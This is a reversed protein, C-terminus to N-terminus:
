RGKIGIYKKHYYEAYSTNIWSKPDRPLEAFFLTNPINKISDIMCSDGKFNTLFEHRATREKDYAAATGSTIDKYAVSINNTRFVLIFILILYVPLKIYVPLAFDPYRKKITALLSISFYMMGAVFYYYSVNVTRLPPFEGEAYFCVFLGIVPISVSALLSLWPSIFYYTNPEKNWIDSKSLLDFLLLGILLMFPSWHLLYTKSSVFAERLSFMLKHANPYDVARVLNGPAKIEIISFIICVLLLSLPFLLSRKKVVSLLAVLGVILDIYVLTLEYSGIIAIAFLCSIFFYWKKHKSNSYGIVSGLLLLSMFEAPLCAYSGSEWFIGSPVDPMRMIFAFIFLSTIGLKGTRGLTKFLKGSLWYTSLYLLTLLLIANLKVAWYVHFAIPSLSILIATFYRGMWQFYYFHQTGLFGKQTVLNAEAYDDSCPHNYYSLILLPLLTAILLVLLAGTNGVNYKAFWKNINDM